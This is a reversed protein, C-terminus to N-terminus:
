LGARLNTGPKEKRWYLLVPARSNGTLLSFTLQFRFIYSRSFTSPRSMIGCSFTQWLVDDPRNCNLATRCNDWRALLPWAFSSKTASRWLQCQKVQSRKEQAWWSGMQSTAWCRLVLVLYCSCLTSGARWCIGKCLSRTTPVVPCNHISCPTMPLLLVWIHCM